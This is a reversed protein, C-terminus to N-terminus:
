RAKELDEIQKAVGAQQEPTLKAWNEPALQQQLSQITADAQPKEAKSAAGKVGSRKVYDGFTEKPNQERQYAIVDKVDWPIDKEIEGMMDRAYKKQDANLIPSPQLSKLANVASQKIRAIGYLSNLVTYGERPILPQLQESAWNGGYVPSMLTSLERGLGAMSEQMNIEDEKTLHTALDTKLAGTLSTGPRMSGFPGTTTGVPMDAVNKLDVGVEAGATLQRQIQAGARGGGATSATVEKVATAGEPPSWPKGTVSDVWGAQGKHERVLVQQPNGDKDMYEIMKSQALKDGGEGGGKALRDEAVRVREAAIGEASSIRASAIGETSKIQMEKLAIQLDQQHEKAWMQAQMKEEPALIKNMQIFTLAKVAPDLGPNAKNIAQVLEARTTRGWQVPDIERGALMATKTSDQVTPGDVGQQILKNGSQDLSTDLAKHVAALQMHNPDRSGLPFGLGFRGANEHVWQDAEPNKFSWDAAQGTEHLSKGPPAAMFKTGQGSREYIDAQQQNTRFGSDVSAAARVDPPADALMSSVRQKLEPSEGQWNVGSGALNPSLLPSTPQGAGAQMAPSTPVQPPQQPTTPNQPIPPQQQASQQELIPWLAGLTQQEQDKMQLNQMMERQRLQNLQRQQWLKDSEMLGALPALSGLSFAM